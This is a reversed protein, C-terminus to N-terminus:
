SSQFPSRPKWLLAPSLLAPCPTWMQAHTETNIRIESHHWHKSVTVLLLGKNLSCNQQKKSKKINSRPSPYLGTLTNNNWLNERILLFLVQVPLQYLILLHVYNSSVLEGKAEQGLWHWRPCTELKGALARGLTLRALCEGQTCLKLHM